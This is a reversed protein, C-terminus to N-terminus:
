NLWWRGLIQPLYGWSQKNHTHLFLLRWLAIQRIGLHSHRFCTVFCWVTSIKPANLSGSSVPEFKPAYSWVDWESYGCSSFHHWLEWQLSVCDSHSWCRGACIFEPMPLGLTQHRVSILLYHHSQLKSLWWIFDVWDDNILCVAEVDWVKPGGHMLCCRESAWSLMEKKRFLM